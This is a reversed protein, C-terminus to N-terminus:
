RNYTYGELTAANSKVTKVVLGKEFEVSYVCGKEYLLGKGHPKGDAFEGNYERGNPWKFIGKGEKINLNYEGRYETGDPWKYLGEGHMKGDLFDGEYTHQNVWKYSGVGTMKDEFFEGEYHEGNHYLIKGKGHRKNSKFEGIYEYEKTKEAGTGHKMNESIEGTYIGGHPSRITSPSEIFGSKFKGELMNGDKDFFRGCGTFEDNNYCGEYRRGDKYYSTGVGHRQGEVNMEGTYCFDDKMFVPVSLKKGEPYFKLKVNEQVVADFEKKPYLKDLVFKRRMPHHM